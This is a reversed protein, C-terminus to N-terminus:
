FRGRGGSRNGGSRGGSSGYGGYGGGGARKEKPKAENVTLARGGNDQGNLAAIAAQAEEDSSMEVFGFGKSRGTDRDAIVEASQVTGHPAFLGELASSDVDYSLNGVYLKKGM